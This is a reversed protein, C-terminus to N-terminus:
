WWDFVVVVLRLWVYVCIVCRFVHSRGKSTKEKRPVILWENETSMGLEYSVVKIQMKYIPLLRILSM